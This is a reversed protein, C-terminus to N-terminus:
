TAVCLTLEVERATGPGAWRVTIRHVTTGTTVDPEVTATLEADPLQAVAAAHWEYLDRAAVESPSCAGPTRCDSTPQVPSSGPELLYQGRAMGNARIREALDAALAAAATEELAARSAGLGAILAAVGGQLGVALVIMAVLVEVLTFGAAANARRRM